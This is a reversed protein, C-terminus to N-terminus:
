SVISCSLCSYSGIKLKTIAQLIISEVGRLVTQQLTLPLAGFYKKVINTNCQLEISQQALEASFVAMEFWIRNVRQEVKNRKTSNIALWMTSLLPMTM